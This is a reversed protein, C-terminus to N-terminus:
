DRPRCGAIVLELYTRFLNPAAIDTEIRTQNQCGEHGAIVLRTLADLDVGPPPVLEEAELV